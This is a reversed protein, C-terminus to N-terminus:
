KSTYSQIFELHLLNRKRDVEKCFAKQAKLWDRGREQALWKLKDSATSIGGKRLNITKLALALNNPWDTGGLYIPRIHDKVFNKPKKVLPDGSYYCRGRQIDFLDNLVAKDHFGGAKELRIARDANKRTNRASSQVMLAMALAVERDSFFFQRVKEKETCKGYELLSPFDITGTGIYDAADTIKQWCPKSVYHPAIIEVVHGQEPPELDARTASSCHGWDYLWSVRLSLNEEGDYRM